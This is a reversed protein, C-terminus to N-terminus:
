QPPLLLPGNDLRRTSANGSPTAHLSVSFTQYEISGDVANETFNFAEAFESTGSITCFRRSVLWLEGFQFQLRYTGVPISTILGDEGSRIFIARRPRGDSVASLVAVADNATGNAITIRGHGGRHRGGLERGSTPREGADESCPPTIRLGTYRPKADTAKSGIESFQQAGEAQQHRPESSLSLAVFAVALSAAAVWFVPFSASEPAAAPADSTAPSPKTDPASEQGQQGFGIGFIQSCHPCRVRIPPRSAADIRVARRCVGCTVAITARRGANPKTSREPNPPSPPPSHHSEPGSEVLCRYAENIRKLKAEARLQLQRNHGFRDPHWVQVLERYAATVEAPTATDTLELEALWEARQPGM